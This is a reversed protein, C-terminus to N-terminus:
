TVASIPAYSRRAFYHAGSAAQKQSRRAREEDAAQSGDVGRGNSEALRRYHGGLGKAITDRRDASAPQKDLGGIRLDRSAGAPNVLKAAIM